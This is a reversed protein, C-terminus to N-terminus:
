ITYSLVVFFFMDHFATFFHNQNDRVHFYFRSIWIVLHIQLIDQHLKLDNNLQIQFLTVSIQVLFRM